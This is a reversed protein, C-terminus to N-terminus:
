AIIQGLRWSEGIVVLQDEAQIVRSPNPVIDVEDGHKVVIVYIGYRARLDAEALTQGILQPPPSIQIISYRQ